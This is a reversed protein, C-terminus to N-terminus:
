NSGLVGHGDKGAGLAACESRLRERLRDRNRRRDGAPVRAVREVLHRRGVRYQEIIPVRVRLADHHAAAERAVAEQDARAAAPPDKRLWKSLLWNFLWGLLFGLVLWWFCCALLSM